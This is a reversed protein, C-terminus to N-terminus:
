GGVVFPFIRVADGDRLVRGRDGESEENVAISKVRGTIGLHDLLDGVTSGNPLELTAEGQAEAPLHARFRSFLKVQVHMPDDIDQM